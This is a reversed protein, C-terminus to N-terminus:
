YFTFSHIQFVELKELLRKYSNFLDGIGGLFLSNFIFGLLFFFSVLCINLINIM